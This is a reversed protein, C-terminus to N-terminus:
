DDHQWPRAKLQQIKGRSLELWLELAQNRSVDKM